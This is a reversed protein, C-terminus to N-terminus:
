QPSTKKQRNLLVIGTIGVVVLLIAIIEAQTIEAGAIHYVSNVRIKEIFFREIGNLILYVCFFVGAKFNVKKRVAWLLGFFGMNVVAEYLPTPYVPNELMTCHPGLCGEIPIGASIVNHPYTYSWVWEPLFGLWAPMPALNEIGWDGDGSFQCGLRGFGYALMLAPASADVVHLVNMGNRHAYYIVAAGGVILGGYMTLGSFFSNVSELMGAIESPNELLHFIKAGMLGFVAAYITMNGIHEHPRIKEEVWKPQPLEEKKKEKYRLYVAIAAGVIGGLLNGKLSLITVQPNDVFDTYNLIASLLKYALIFGIIGSVALEAFTAKAGKLIKKVTPHLLGEKEKRKLDLGWFFAGLFFSIAVFFGFTQIPLPIYIGFLDNLIDSVTPYM